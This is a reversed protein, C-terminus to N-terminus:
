NVYKQNETTLTEFLELQQNRTREEAQVVQAARALGSLIRQSDSPGFAKRLKARVHAKEDPTMMQIDAILKEGLEETTFSTKLKRRAM